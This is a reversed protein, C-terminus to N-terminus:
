LSSASMSTAPVSTPCAPDDITAEGLVRGRVVIRDRGSDAPGDGEFSIEGAVGTDEIVLADADAGGSFDIDNVGGEVILLDAGHDGEFDINSVTGLDLIVLADADAGGGFDIDNVSGEVVFLDAGDDGEFDISNVSGEPDVVLADADQGGVFYIGFDMGAPTNPISPNDGAVGIVSGRVTVRDLGQDGEFSIEGASGGEEIVLADADAGGDFVIDEISGELLFRDAGSDGEFDINDVSGGDLIVLADADAGGSFDIDDISGYVILEDAGTDGEFDISNVIAEPAVTLIDKDAGGRFYLSFDIGPLINPITPNDFNVDGLIKGAITVRDIGMDGEFSIEEASGAPFLVLADADAGGGFDIETVSGEIEFLDAGVDGHYIARQVIAGPKIALKDDGTDGEFDIQTSVEGFVEFLDAGADGEFRIDEVSSAPWLTLRDVDAGGGFDIDTASGFVDFVDPGADGEFSIEEATSTAPMVLADADNGGRFTMPLLTSGLPVRLQDQGDGGSVTSGGLGTLTDNFQSGILEAFTGLASVFHGPAVEQVLNAPLTSTTTADLGFSIGFDSLDFDLVNAGIEDIVTFTSNPRFKYTDKGLKVPSNPGGGSGPVNANDNGDRLIYIDDGAGGFLHDTGKGGDLILSRPATVASGDIVDVGDLGLVVLRDFTGVNLVTFDSNTVM